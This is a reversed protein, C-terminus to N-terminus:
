LDYFFNFTYFGDYIKCTFHGSNNSIVKLKTLKVLLSAPRFEARAPIQKPLQVLSLPTQRPNEDDQACNFSLIM